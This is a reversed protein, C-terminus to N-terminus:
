RIRGYQSGTSQAELERQPVPADGPLKWQNLVGRMPARSETPAAAPREPRAAVRTEVKPQWLRNRLDVAGPQEPNFRVAMDALRLAAPADGAAMAAHASRVYRDAVAARDAPSLPGGQALEEALVPRAAVLVLLEDRTPTEPESSFLALPDHRLKPKEAPPGNLYIGALVLTEGEAVFVTQAVVHKGEIGVPTILELDLRILGDAGSAPRVRLRHSPGLSTPRVEKGTAPPESPVALEGAMGQAISTRPTGTITAEGFPTLADYLTRANGGLSALKLSGSAAAWRNEGTANLPALQKKERLAAFDITKGPTALRVRLVVAELAIQPPAVDIAAVVRDFQELNSPRDRVVVAPQSKGQPAGGVELRSALRVSGKPDALLPGLFLQLDAATIFRPRYARAGLPDLPERLESWEKYSQAVAATDERSGVFRGAATPTSFQDRKRLAAADQVEIALRGDDFRSGDAPKDGAPPKVAEGSPTAPLPHSTPLQWASPKEEARPKTELPSGSAVFAPVAGTPAATPLSPQFDKKVVADVSAATPTEKKAVTPADVAPLEKKPVPPAIAIPEPAQPKSVAVQERPKAPATAPVPSPGPVAEEGASGTQAKEPPPGLALGICLALALGALAFGSLWGTPSKTKM